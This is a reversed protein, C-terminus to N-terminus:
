ETWDIWVPSSWACNDDELVVRAYYYAGAEPPGPDKWRLRCRGGDCSRTFVTENNRVIEVRVVDIPAEVTVDVRIPSGRRLTAEEGMFSHNVRVDLLVRIGTTAYTRRARFAEFLGERTLDEAYVAALAMRRIAYVHNHHCDTSGIVGFRLGRAWGDQAFSGEAPGTKPPGGPGVMRDWSLVIGARDESDGADQAVMYAAAPPLSAPPPKKPNGLYEFIGHVSCIEVLPQVAPDFTDWDIPAFSRGIHHPIAIGGSARVCHLLESLAAGDRYCCVEGRDTPHCINRHGAAVSAWRYSSEYGSFSVFRGPEYFASAVAQTLRWKGESYENDHDSVCVFDHGYVDRGLVFCHDIPQRGDSLETHNHLDGWYLHFREGRVNVTTGSAAIAPIEFKPAPEADIPPPDVSFDDPGLAETVEDTICAATAQKWAWAAWLDGDQTGAACPSFQQSIPREACFLFPETWRRGDYAAGRIKWRRMQQREQWLVWPRARRDLVVRAFNVSESALGSGVLVCEVSLDTVRALVAGWRPEGRAVVNWVVWLGGEPHPVAGARYSDFGPGDSLPRVSGWAGGDFPRAFVRDRGGSWGDWLLWVAGGPEVAIAPRYDDCNAKESVVYTESELGHRWYKARIDFDEGRHSQWALWVRGEPDAGLAPALDVGGDSVLKTAARWVAGDFVRGEIDWEGDHWWAWAVWVAGSSDVAAAPGFAVHGLPSVPEPTTPRGQEIRNVYVRSQKGECQDWFVWPTGQRDVVIAPYEAHGELGGLVPSLRSFPSPM